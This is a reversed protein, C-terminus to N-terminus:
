GRIKDKSDRSCRIKMENSEITALIIELIIEM